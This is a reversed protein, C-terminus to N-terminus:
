FTKAYEDTEEETDWWIGSGECFASDASAIMVIPHITTDNFTITIKVQWRTKECKVTAVNRCEFNDYNGYSTNM